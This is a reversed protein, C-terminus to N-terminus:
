RQRYLAALVKAPYNEADYLSTIFRRRQGAFQTTILRAKWDDSLHLTYSGPERRSTCVSSATAWNWLNWCKM